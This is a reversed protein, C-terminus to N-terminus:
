VPFFSKSVLRFLWFGFRWSEGEKEENGNETEETETPVMCVEKEALCSSSARRLLSTRASRWPVCSACAISPGLRMQCRQIFRTFSLFHLLMPFVLFMLSCLGHLQTSHNENPLLHLTVLCGPLWTWQAHRTPSSQVVSGPLRPLEFYRISPCRKPVSVFCEWLLYLFVSVMLGGMDYAVWRVM